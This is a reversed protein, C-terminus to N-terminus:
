TGATVRSFERFPRYGKSTIHQCPRVRACREIDVELQVHLRNRLPQVRETTGPQFALAEGLCQRHPIQTPMVRIQRKEPRPQFLREGPVLEVQDDEVRRVFDRAAPMLIGFPPIAPRIFSSSASAWLEPAATITACWKALPPPAFWSAISGMLPVPAHARSGSLITTSGFKPPKRDLFAYRQPTPSIGWQVRTLKM